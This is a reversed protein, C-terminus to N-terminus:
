GDGEVEKEFLEKLVRPTYKRSDFGEISKIISSAMADNLTGRIINIKQLEDKYLRRQVLVDHLLKYYKYGGVVNVSNFEIAHQIDVVELDLKQISDNLFKIRSQNVVTRYLNDLCDKFKGITELNNESDSKVPQKKTKLRMMDTNVVRFNYDKATCSLNNQLCNLAKTENSWKYADEESYVIKRNEDIYRGENDTIIYAM